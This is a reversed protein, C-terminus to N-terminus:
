LREAVIQFDMAKIKERLWLVLDQRSEYEYQELEEMIRDIEDMRYNKCAEKLRALCAADPEPKKPKKIEDSFQATLEAAIKEAGAVLQSNHVAIFDLDGKRAARELEAALNGVEDATIGYHVGKASHVAVTYRELKEQEGPAPVDRLSDLLPHIHVTYSRLVDLLVEEAGNFRELAKTMDLGDIGSPMKSANAAPALPTPPSLPTSPPSSDPPSSSAEWEKERKKDRVWRHIVADLRIIDIPKSLFDNFGASLFMEENGAIANATLIIIPINKAYETGISQRIARLAEIGDMGPMMHDMFIADYRPEGKLILDVAERGGLVCDVKMAYPYLMGRAVDLNIPMDDVVLVRAYPLKLRNLAANRRRKQASYHFAMLNEAMAAGIPPANISKQRIRVTFTSGKGYESEVSIAGDMFEVIRKTLALGLGTGETNRNTLLDLRNYDAFLKERDEVKIGIGSDKVSVTLWVSGAEEQCFIRWIVSGELTYKFANSLLNNFIQKLRLEDGYLRSPLTEDIMLKFSIPKSGIRIVNLNITDNILSPLEYEAPLLEFKGSEIKSIDLLDNVIGLLTMGSSYVKEINEAAAPPIGGGLSLESLGIIANLPTRMEHSMNALFSSKAANAIASQQAKRRYLLMSVIGSGVGIILALIQVILLRRSDAIQTIIFTDDADIGATCYFSGDADRMPLFAYMMGSWLSAYEGLATVYPKGSFAKAAVEDIEYVDKISDSDEPDFINDIIHYFHKGDGMAKVFYAYKVQYRDAFEALRNKLEWYEPKATDEESQFQKLYDVTVMASLKEALLLLYQQTINATKRTNEKMLYSTYIQIALLCSAAMFYLALRLITIFFNNGLRSKKSGAAQNQPKM